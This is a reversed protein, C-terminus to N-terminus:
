QAAAGDDGAAGGGLIQQVHPTTDIGSTAARFMAQLFANTKEPEHGAIIKTPKVDIEEGVVLETIQILKVLLDIKAQKETVLKADVEDGVLLGKGFGTAQSTAAFIDHLYRFPPKMLLKQTMKPKQFIQGYMEATVQWYEDGM